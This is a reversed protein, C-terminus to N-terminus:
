TVDNYSTMRAEIIPRVNGCVKDGLASALKHLITNRSAAKHQSTESIFTPRAYIPSIVADAVISNHKFMQTIIRLMGNIGLPQLYM